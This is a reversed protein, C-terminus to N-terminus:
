KVQGTKADQLSINYRTLITGMNQDLAIRANEYTVLAGSVTAQATAVDRQQQIVNFPTSAGLGFKEREGKLLEETLKQNQVAALYRVRAQQLAIVANSIDVGVQNQQKQLNLQTQRLQLQDIGFDAQAQNNGIPAVAFAGIRRTPFNNRFVQGLAQSVGGIFYPNAPEANPGVAPRPTGAIGANTQGGIVQATPLLGNATGLANVQSVRLNSQQSAIDSRNALANRVMDQYPPLDDKDPIAIKDVPVIDVGALSPDALGTRSLLDKLQLQDQQYSTQAIVLDLQTTAVQSETTTLDAEALSGIQVQRKNNELLEQAVRLAEAKARLNEDDSVLAYYANLVRVVVNEVQTRFNVDANQLNIRSATITRSNAAIGFGRLLNHQFSLSLNPAESPNLIDSPSNENLYHNSYSLTVNGGTLFGEQLSGSYVRTNSLLVPTLTQIVNPYITTRHTFTTTEQVTPDLVQTVPGIQSVTANGANTANGNGGNLTVGAASQSGAVGQGSAVSGAQSASSPVGPLSGGAQARELRWALDIPTYRAIEIDINDAIALVIADHATLYLKGARIFENLRPSNQLRIPPVEPALYPRIIVPAKAKEPEISLQQASGSSCGLCACLGVALVQELVAAFRM